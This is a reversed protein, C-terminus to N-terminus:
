ETLQTSHAAIIQWQDQEVQYWTRTFRLKATAPNGGFIGSIEMIVSVIATDQKVLIKQDSCEISNISIFGTKHANIDDHKSYLTGTQDTFILDDSLLIDLEEINSSLMADKLRNEHTEILINKM